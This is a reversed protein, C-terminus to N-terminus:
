PVGQELRQRFWAITQALGEEFSIQPIFGLVAKARSIDALTRRAEGLRAPLHHPAVRKRVIRNLTDLMELLSHDHGDAINFVGAGIPAADLARLTGQVVNEIFLFDRSQLGDGYVPPPEDRLLCVTFRPIAMAYGSEGDMRPGFANFYRLCITEIGYLERFMQAYLEGALKSVAYPSAPHLPQDEQVPYTTVNGYVSSSSAFVVRQVKAERAAVFVNLTGEVNVRNCLLPDDLSRPISRIAAEHVVHTIGEMARRVTAADAVDGRILDIRPQVAALNETLGTSFDDLVRVQDGRAVLADVLHSGIFGAGGTVLVHRM